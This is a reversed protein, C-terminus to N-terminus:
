RAGRTATARTLWRRSLQMTPAFADRSAESQTEGDRLARGLVRDAGVLHRQGIFEDLTRPRMREALPADRPSPRSLDRAALEVDDFLGDAM